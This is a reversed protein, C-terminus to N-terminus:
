LCASHRLWGCPPVRALRLVFFLPTGDNGMAAQGHKDLIIRPPLTMSTRTTCARLCASLCASTANAIGGWGDLAGFLRVCFAACSRRPGGCPGSYQTGLGALVPARSDGGRRDAGTRMQGRRDPSRLCGGLGGRTRANRGSPPPRRPAGFGAGVGGGHAAERRVAGARM